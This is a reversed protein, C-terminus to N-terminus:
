KLPKCRVGFDVHYHEDHRVWAKGKMFSLNSKLFEGHRTAFLKPLYPPDFIVLKISAGRTAAAAHLQFLHEGIAEFDINFQDYRASADFEIAYGFKNSIGTPLPVSKGAGNKVPVFFDVSLGNQHSRHPKFSGGSKWGTEGYVFRTGPSASELARYAATVIAAVKGHVYTRGISAGADSYASFNNGEPPLRVAGELKGNATTGFCISESQATASTILLICVLLSASFPRM